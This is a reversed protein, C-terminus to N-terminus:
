RMEALDFYLRVPLMSIMATSIRESRPKYLAGLHRRAGHGGFVAPLGLYEPAVGLGLLLHEKDIEMDRLIM